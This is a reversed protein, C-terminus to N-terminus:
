WRNEGEFYDTVMIHMCGLLIQGIMILTWTLFGESEIFNTFMGFLFWGMWILMWFGFAAWTRSHDSRM